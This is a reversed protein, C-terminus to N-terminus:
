AATVNRHAFTRTDLAGCRRRWARAAERRRRGRGAGCMADGAPNLCSWLIIEMRTAPNRIEYATRGVSEQQEPTSM